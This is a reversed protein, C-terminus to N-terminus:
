FKFIITSSLSEITQELENLARKLSRRVKRCENMQDDLRINAKCGQCIITDRLRAQKFLFTNWFNCKPCQFELQFKDIDIM